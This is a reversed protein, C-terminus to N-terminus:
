LHKKLFAELREYLEVRNQLTYFGHGEWKEFMVEVPTGNKKLSRVLRRSQDSDVIQDDGGHAVFVPIKIRDASALPSLAAFKERNAKPDGLKRLFFEYRYSNAGAKKFARVARDWDFIGALTVACRYLDPEFAAGCVALYGGFSSGVIAIREPDALGSRILAHVGDTVDEHMQRFEMRPVLSIGAHYGASGRYNPRFVVYGRSAFFQSEADYGWSDRVWPGGHPLVIMPAPRGEVHNLPLTVYADLLLGDRAKYSTVRVPSLLQEPLWPALDGVPTVRGAKPELLYLTGPHRDSSSRVLLRSGDRNRNAILNVRNAPLASNIARQLVAEAAVLPVQVPAQREYTFSLPEKTQPSFQIWGNSFDYKEDTHIVPGATGNRTNLRVLERLGAPTQHAVLLVDPDADVAVPKTQEYDLDLRTWTKDTERRHLSILADQHTIAYRIEGTRDTLWGLLGEEKPPTVITHVMVPDHEMGLPIRSKRSLDLEVVRGASFSWILMHDPRSDPTGLMDSARGRSLIVPRTKFERDHLQIEAAYFNEQVASVVLREDGVWEFDHLDYLKTGTLASPRNTALDLVRIGTSDTKPEYVMMALHTGAPNLKAATILPPRLFDEATLQAPGDPIRDAALGPIHLLVIFGMARLPLLIAKTM